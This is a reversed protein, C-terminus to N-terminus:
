CGTTSMAAGGNPGGWCRRDGSRRSQLGFAGLYGRTRAVSATTIGTVVASQRAASWKRGVSGRTSDGIDPM